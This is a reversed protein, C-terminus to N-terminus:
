DRADFTIRGDMMTLMVPVQHIEQPDVRFLDSGLVVLDARKGVEISGLDHEKRLQYAANITYARLADHVSIRQRPVFAEDDPFGPRKRTVAAEIQILPPVEALDVGPLDAGFTVV